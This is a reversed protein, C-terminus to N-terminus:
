EELETVYEELETIRESNRVNEADKEENKSMMEGDYKSKLNKHQNTLEEKADKLM